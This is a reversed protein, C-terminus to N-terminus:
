SILAKLCSKETAFGITVFHAVDIMDNSVSVIELDREDIDIDTEEKVEGVVGEELTEGFELKGGPITWTGEGQLESDAKEPDSHRKGLLVKGDKVLIVGVGVGVKKEHSNM